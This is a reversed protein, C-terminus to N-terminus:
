KTIRQDGQKQITKIEPKTEKKETKVEKKETKNEVKAKKQKNIRRPDKKLETIMLNSPDFFVDAVTGNAKKRQINDLTVKSKKLFVKDVKGAHGKFDGRMVKVNDGNRLPM